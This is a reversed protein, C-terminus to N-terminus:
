PKRKKRPKRQKKLLALRDKYMAKVRKQVDQDSVEATIRRIKQAVPGIGNRYDTIHIGLQHLRYYVAPPKLGTEQGIYRASFGQNAMRATIRAISQEEWSIKIRKKLLAIDFARM